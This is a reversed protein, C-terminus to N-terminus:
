LWDAYHNAQSAVCDHSASPFMARTRLTTQNRCNDYTSHLSALHPLRCQATKKIRCHQKGPVKALMANVTETM